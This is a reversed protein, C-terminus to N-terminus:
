GPRQFFRPPESHTMISRSVSISRMRFSKESRRRFVGRECSTTIFAAYRAMIRKRISVPLKWRLWPQMFPLMTPAKIVTEADDRAVNAEAAELARRAKELLAQQTDTM